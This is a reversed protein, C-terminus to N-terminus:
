LFTSFLIEDYGPGTHDRLYGEIVFGNKLYFAVADTNTNTVLLWVKRIGKERLRRVKEDLLLKGIGKRKLSDHVAVTPVYAVGYLTSTSSIYGVINGREDVSVLIDQVKSNSIINSPDFSKWLWSERDGKHFWAFTERLMQSLTEADSEAFERISYTM